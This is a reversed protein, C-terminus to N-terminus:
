DVGFENRIWPFVKPCQFCTYLYRDQNFIRSHVKCMNPVACAVESQDFVNDCNWAKFSNLRGIPTPDKMWSIAQWSTVFWVDPQQSVEAIFDQFADLYEQKKFWSSHFHLGFPARNTLYHRKFNHILIRYIDDGSLNSPCSDVMACSYGDAELQNLVMEWVAPYSRTPCNQKFSTCEHPIKHDLTYPWLPPNSFPAVISNDYVFGFEKMMLFQRNWGVQLFPVRLGKIDSLRVKSFKNIINAQGVMEDFWEEITANHSWWEEPARHTISHVAIEHGQNWLKQTHYYNNLGHNVFFTARISCGNPNKWHNFLMTDFLEWNDSNIAGDFTLTIMQPTESPLLNGPIQTGDSSCFCNPLVCTSQNCPLAPNPDHNPDCHREDSGDICDVSGDCFYYQPLCTGDRCPQQNKSCKPKNLSSAPTITESTIDCNDVNLKFDCIQRHVDFLLGTSCRFDFVEGELCLFYKSCETSTWIKHPPRDPDRYFRGNELCKVQQSTTTAVHTLFYLTAAFFASHASQLFAM